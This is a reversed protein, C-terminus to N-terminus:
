WGSKILTEKRYCERNEFKKPKVIKRNQLWIYETDFRLSDLESNHRNNGFNVKESLRLGLQEFMEEPDGTAVRLNRQGLINKTVQFFFYIYVPM